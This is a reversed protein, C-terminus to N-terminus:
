IAPQPLFPTSLRFALRTNYATDDPGRPREVMVPRAQWSTDAELELAKAEVPSIEGDLGGDLEGIHVPTDLESYSKEWPKTIECDASVESFVPRATHPRTRPRAPGSWEWYDSEGYVDPYPQLSDNRCVVPRECTSSSTSTPVSGESGCAICRNARGTTDTRFSSACESLGNSGYSHTRVPNSRACESIGNAGYTDKPRTPKKKKESHGCARKLLGGIPAM